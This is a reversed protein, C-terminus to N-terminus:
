LFPNEFNCDTLEIFFLIDEFFIYFEDL